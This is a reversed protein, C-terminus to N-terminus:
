IRPVNFPDASEQKIKALPVIYPQLAALVRPAETTAAYYLREFDLGDYDHAIWDRMGSIGRWEVDPESNRFEQSLRKVHEGCRTIAMAVANQKEDSAAFEDFTMTGMFRQADRLARAIAVIHIRDRESCHQQM